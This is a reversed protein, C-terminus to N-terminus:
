LAEADIKQMEKASEDLIASMAAFRKVFANILERNQGYKKAMEEVATGEMGEQVLNLIAADIEEIQNAIEEVLNNMELAKTNINSAKMTTKNGTVIM